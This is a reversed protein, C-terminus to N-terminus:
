ELDFFRLHIHNAKETFEKLFKTNKRDDPSKLPIQQKAEGLIINSHLSDLFLKLHKNEVELREMETELYIFRLHIGHAKETLENLITTNRIGDPPGLQMQQMTEGLIINKHLSNLALKLHKNEVELREM